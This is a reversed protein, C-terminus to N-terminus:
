AIEFKRNPNLKQLRALVDEQTKENGIAVIINPNKYREGNEKISYIIAVKTIYTRGFKNHKKEVLQTM